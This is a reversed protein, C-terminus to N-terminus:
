RATVSRNVRITQTGHQYLHDRSRRYDVDVSELHAIGRRTPTITVFLYDSDPAIGHNFRMPPEFAEIDSCVSGPDHVAGIPDEGSAMHCLWFSADAKATNDSFTATLGEITVQENAGNVKPFIVTTSLAADELPLPDSKYSDGLGTFVTPQTWWRWAVVGAVVLVVGAM